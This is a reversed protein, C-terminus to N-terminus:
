GGGAGLKATCQSGDFGFGSGDGQRRQAQSSGTAVEAGDAFGPASEQSAFINGEATQQNQNAQVQVPNENQTPQQQALPNGGGFGSPDRSMMAQVSRADAYPSQMPVDGPSSNIAPGLGGAEGIPADNAPPPPQVVATTETGRAVDSGRLWWGLDRRVANEGACLLLLHAGLRM